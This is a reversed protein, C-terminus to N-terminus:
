WRPTASRVQCELRLEAGDTAYRLLAWVFANALEAPRACRRSLDAGECHLAVLLAIVPTDKLNPNAKIRRTADYGNLVPLQIDMLILDPRETVAKSLGAEGDAAEIAIYGARSSPACCVRLDEQDEVVLIRKSMTVPSGGVVGGHAAKSLLYPLLKLLM